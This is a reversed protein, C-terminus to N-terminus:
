STKANRNPPIFDFTFRFATLTICQGYLGYDTFFCTLELWTYKVAICLKVYFMHTFNICFSVKYPICLKVYFM